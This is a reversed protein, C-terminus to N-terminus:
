RRRTLLPEHIPLCASVEYRTRCWLGGTMWDVAGVLAKLYWARLGICKAHDM